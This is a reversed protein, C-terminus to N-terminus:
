GAQLFCDRRACFGQQEHMEVPAAGERLLDAPYAPLIADDKEFVICLSMSASEVSGSGTRKTKGGGVTEIRSFIEASEAVGAGDGGVRLGKGIAYARQGVIARGPLIYEAVLTHVGAEVFQLRSEEPCLKWAKVGVVVPAPLHSAHIAGRYVIRVYRKRNKRLIRFFIDPMDERDEGVPAVFELGEEGVIAYVSEYMIGYRGMTLFTVPFPVAQRERDSFADVGTLERDGDRGYDGVVFHLVYDGGQISKRRM